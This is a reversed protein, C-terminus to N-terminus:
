AKLAAIRKEIVQEEPKFGDLKLHGIWPEPLAEAPVLGVIESSRVAVEKEGALEVVRDFVTKLSTAGFDCVNMSVQACKRDQIELGLAKIGKLGGGRERIRKAIRKALKVNDTELDINYAILAIRAGVGTAGATPHIKRPGFDPDREPDRGIAERLEEFQGKRVVALNRREPRTAAEEYLFVPIQLQTGIREGTPHM